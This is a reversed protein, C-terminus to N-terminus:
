EAAVGTTRIRPRSELTRHVPCKDAIALLSARQEATLDGVLEIARGILEIKMAGGECDSACDSAHHRSHELEVVVRTLPIGKREAYGKITMSTCAGLAALLLDYPTPGDDGGGFSRPEDVILEHGPTTIRQAFKGGATEVRVVGEVPRERSESAEPLYRSVWAAIMAAAYGASGDALLLHDAGDLAIFSKPHRAAGYIAAANELGVITDTPAHAVLLAKGLGALREAQPQHRLQEIFERRVCFPRGGISVEAEGREIVTELQDGLLGLVHDAEFPSGITVVAKADPIAPAAAIVAAGGLSHGILVTPPYGAERLADAAAVLDAVNTSFGANAFEGESSGLGTFDFRLVAIGAAALAQSILTAARSQKTCTFCHAFLATGRPERHAPWELRGDLMHGDASAFRFPRATIM